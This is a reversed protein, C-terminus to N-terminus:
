RIASNSLNEHFNSGADLPNALVTLDDLSTPLQEDDARNVGFVLLTLTLELRLPEYM